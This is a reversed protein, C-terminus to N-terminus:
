FGSCPLATHTIRSIFITPEITAEMCVDALWFAWPTLSFFSISPKGSIIYPDARARIMFTALLQETDFEHEIETVKGRKRRMEEM